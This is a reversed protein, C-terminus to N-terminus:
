IQHLLVDFYISNSCWFILYAAEKDYLRVTEFAAKSEGGGGGESRGGNGGNVGSRDMNHFLLCPFFYIEESCEGNVSM